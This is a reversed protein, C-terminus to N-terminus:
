TSHWRLVLRGDRTGFSDLHKLFAMGLLSSSMPSKNVEVRINDLEIGGVVLRDIQASAGFGTGHATESPLSYDLRDVDIGARRADDPSLVISTAGTDIAFHARAGNITGDVYYSGDESAAIEMEHPGTAVPTGPILEGRVREGIRGLEGRFTYGIGLVGFVACWIAVNRLTDKTRFRRGMVVGASLLILFGILNILRAQDFDSSLADPYTKALKWIVFAVALAVAVWILSRQRSTLGQKTKRGWPGGADAM